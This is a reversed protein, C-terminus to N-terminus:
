NKQLRGQTCACTCIETPKHWAKEWTLTINAGHLRIRYLVIVRELGKNAGDLRAERRRRVVEPLLQVEDLEQHAVASRSEEEADVAYRHDVGVHVFPVDDDHVAGQLGVVVALGDAEDVPLVGDFAHLDVLASSDKQGAVLVVLLVMGDGHARIVVEEDPADHGPDDLFGSM